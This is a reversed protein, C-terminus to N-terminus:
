INIGLTKAFAQVEPWVAKIDSIQAPLLTLNVPNSVDASVDSVVKQIGGLIVGLAAVAAPAVTIKQEAKNLWGLVDEAAVEIGKEVNLFINPV